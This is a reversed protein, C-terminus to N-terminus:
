GQPLKYPFVDFRALCTKCVARVRESDATLVTIDHSECLPCVMPM